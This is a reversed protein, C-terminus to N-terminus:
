DIETHDIVTVSKSVEEPPQPTSSATVVLEEHIGALQLEIDMSKPSDRTLQVNEEFFTAFGAAEARLIYDGPALGDFHYSGSSDSTTNTSISASRSYLELSAGAVARGQPDRVVGSVSAGPAASLVSYVASLLFLVFLCASKM